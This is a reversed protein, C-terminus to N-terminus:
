KGIELVYIIKKTLITASAEKLPLDWFLISTPSFCKNNNLFYGKIKKEPTQLFQSFCLM